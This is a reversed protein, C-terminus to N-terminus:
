RREVWREAAETARAFTEEVQQRYAELQEKDADAPVFIPTAIICIAVSWPRPLAFKDWSKLRWPRQYAIGAPVIPMGTNAALRVLGSHVQRRPGRPGDPTIALHANKGTRMMQRVAEVGGRTTSGRILGFRLHRCIQAILEGDQHQSILVHIHARGFDCAPLLINEHWFAYLCRTTNGPLRPDLKPDVFYHRRRLTGIWLKVLLAGALGLFQILWQQRIKM